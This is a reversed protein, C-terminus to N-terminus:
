RGAPHPLPSPANTPQPLQYKAVLRAIEPDRAALRHLDMAFRELWPVSNSEYDSVVKSLEAVNQQLLYQQTRMARSQYYLFVNVALALLIVLGISYHLTTRLEALSQRLGAVETPDVGLRDPPEDPFLEPEKASNM